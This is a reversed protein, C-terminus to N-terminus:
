RGVTVPRARLHLNLIHIDRFIKSPCIHIHMSIYPYGHHIDLVIWCTPDHYTGSSDWIYGYIDMSIWLYGVYGNYWCPGLEWIVRISAYATMHMQFGSFTKVHYIGLIYKTYVILRGLKFGPIYEDSDKGGRYRTNSKRYRGYCEINFVEIDFACEIDVNQVKSITDNDFTYSISPRIIRYRLDCVKSISTWSYPQRYRPKM